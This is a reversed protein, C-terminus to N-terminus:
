GANDTRVAHAQPQIKPTHSAVRRAVWAGALLGIPLNVALELGRNLLEASLGVATRTTLAGGTLFRPMAPAALGIAWERLGLGNGVIPVLMAVQATAALAASEAPTLAAGALWFVLAYRACWCATDLYRWCFGRALRSVGPRRSTSALLVGLALPWLAACWSALASHELRMQVVVVASALMCVLSIATVATAQMVVLASDKVPIDNITKHYLVRGLLGPRLPLYNAANASALLAFMEPLSVRARGAHDPKTLSWFTLTTLVLNCAPLLLGLPLTWWRRTLLDRLSKVILDGEARLSWIAAALLILALAFGLWRRLRASRKPAPQPATDVM